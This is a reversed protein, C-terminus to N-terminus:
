QGQRAAAVALQVCQLEEDTEVVWGSIRSGEKTVRRRGKGQENAEEDVGGNGGALEEIWGFHQLVDKRLRASHEGIGGSFVLGHLKNHPVPSSLVTSIYHSLYGLLRDLYLKYTLLAVKQEESSSEASEPFAREIIVGFDNTGTLAIRSLARDTSYSISAYLRDSM